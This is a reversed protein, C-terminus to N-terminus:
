DLEEAAERSCAPSVLFAPLNIALAKLLNGVFAAGKKLFAFLSLPTETGSRAPGKENEALSSL